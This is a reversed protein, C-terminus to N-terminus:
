RKLPVFLYDRFIGKRNKDFYPHRENASEHCGVCMRTTVVVEEKDPKKICYVWSNLAQKNKSEKKMVFLAPRATSIDANKKYVEKIIISGEKYVVREEGTATKVVDPDFAIKNAYIVRQTDGHGPIEYNLVTKVPKGWTKYDRPVRFRSEGSKGSCGTLIVFILYCTIKKM